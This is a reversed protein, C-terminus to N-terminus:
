RTPQQYIGGAAGDPYILLWRPLYNGICGEFFVIINILTHQSSISHYTYSSSAATSPFKREQWCVAQSRMGDGEGCGGCM